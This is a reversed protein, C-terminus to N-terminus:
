LSYFVFGPLNQFLYSDERSRKELSNLPISGGVEAKGLRREVSQAVVARMLYIEYAVHNIYLILAYNTQITFKFINYQPNVPIIILYFVHHSLCHPPFGHSFLTTEFFKISCSISLSRASPLYVSTQM